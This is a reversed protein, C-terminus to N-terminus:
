RQVQRWTQNRALTSGGIVRVRIKGGGGYGLCFAALLSVFVVAPLYGGIVPGIMRPECAVEAPVPQTTSSLPEEARGTPGNTAQQPRQFVFAGLFICAVLGSGASLSAVTFPM